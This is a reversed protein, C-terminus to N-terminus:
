APVVSYSKINILDALLDLDDAELSDDDDSDVDSDNGDTNDDHDDSDSSSTSSSVEDDANALLIAEAPAIHGAAVMSALELSLANEPDSISRSNPEKSVLIPLATSSANAPWFRDVNLTLYDIWFVYHDKQVYDLPRAGRCDAMHIMAPEYIALLTFAQFSPRAGWCTDHMLTRGQADCVKLDAGQEIFVKLIRHYGMRCAKHMLSEGHINCANPSVGCSLIERLSDEDQSKVIIEILKADYSVLQLPTPRNCYASRLAPYRKTTYGRALLLSDLHEQASIEAGTPHAGQAAESEAHTGFANTGIASDFSTVSPCKKVHGRRRFGNRRGLSAFLRTFVKFASKNPPPTHVDEGKNSAVFVAQLEIPIRNRNM